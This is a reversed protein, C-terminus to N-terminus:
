VLEAGGAPRGGVRGAQRDQGAERAVLVDRLAPDVVREAEGDGLCAGRVDPRRPVDRAVLGDRRQRRHSHAEAELLVVRDRAERALRPDHELRQLLVAHDDGVVAGVPVDAASRARLPRVVLQM